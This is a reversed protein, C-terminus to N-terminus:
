VSVVRMQEDRALSSNDINVKSPSGERIPNTHKSMCSSGSSACISAMAATKSDDFLTLWFVTSDEEYKDCHLRWRRAPIGMEVVPENHLAHTPMEPANSADDANSANAADATSARSLGRMDVGTSDAALTVVPTVTARRAANSTHVAVTEGADIITDVTVTAVADIIRDVAATAGAADIFTRIFNSQAARFSSAQDCFEHVQHHCQVFLSEWEPFVDATTEAILNHMEERHMQRFPISVYMITGEEGRVFLPIGCSTLISLFSANGPDGALQVSCPLMLKEDEVLQGPDNWLGEVENVEWFRSYSQGSFASISKQLSHEMHTLLAAMPRFEGAIKKREDDSLESFITILYGVFVNMLLISVLFNFALFFVRVLSTGTVSQHGDVPVHWNNMITQQLLLIVAKGFNDFSLDYYYNGRAVESYFATENWPATSWDGPGGDEVVQTLQGAFLSMGIGIFFTYISMFLVIMPWALCLAHKLKQVVRHSKDARMTATCLRFAMSVCAIASLQYPHDAWQGCIPPKKADYADTASEGTYYCGVSAWSFIVVAATMIPGTASSFSWVGSWQHTSILLQSWMVSPLRIVPREKTCDEAMAGNYPPPRWERRQLHALVVILLDVTVFCATFVEIAGSESTGIQIGFLIILGLAFCNHYTITSPMNLDTTTAPYSWSSIMYHLWPLRAAWHYPSAFTELDNLQSQLAARRVDDHDAVLNLQESLYRHDEKFRVAPDLISKMKLPVQMFAILRHWESRSLGDDSSADKCLAFLVNAWITDPHKNSADVAACKHFQTNAADLTQLARNSSSFFKGITLILIRTTSPKVTSRRGVSKRSENDSCVLEFAHSLAMKRLKADAQNADSAEDAYTDTIVALLINLLFIVNLVMYSFLIIGTWGKDHYMTMLADPHNATTFLVYLNWMQNAEDEHSGWGNV